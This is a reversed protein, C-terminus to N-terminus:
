SLKNRRTAQFCVAYSCVCAPFRDLLVAVGELSVVTVTEMCSVYHKSPSRRKISEPVTIRSIRRPLGSSSSTSSSSSDFNAFTAYGGGEVLSSM